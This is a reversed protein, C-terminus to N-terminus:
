LDAKCNHFDNNIRKNFKYCNIIEFISTISLKVMPHHQTDYALKNIVDDTAELSPLCVGSDDARQVKYRQNRKLYSKNRTDIVSRALLIRRLHSSMSNYAALQEYYNQGTQNYAVIKVKLTSISDFYEQKRISCKGSSKLNVRRRM